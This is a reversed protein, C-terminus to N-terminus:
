QIPDYLFDPHVHGHSYLDDCLVYTFSIILGDVYTFSVILGDSDPYQGTPFRDNLPSHANRQTDHKTDRELCSDHAFTYSYGGPDPHHFAYGNRNRDCIGFTNCHNLFYAIPNANAYNDCV